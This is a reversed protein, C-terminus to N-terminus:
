KALIRGRARNKEEFVQATLSNADLSSTGGMARFRGGEAALAGPWWEGPLHDVIGARRTTQANVAQSERM